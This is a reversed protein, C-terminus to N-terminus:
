TVTRKILLKARFISIKIVGHVSPATIRSSGMVPFTKEDIM